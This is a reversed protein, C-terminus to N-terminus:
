TTGQLVVSPGPRSDPAKTRQPRAPRVHPRHGRPHGAPQCPDAPTRADADRLVAAEAGAPLEALGSLGDLDGTASLEQALVALKVNRRQSYKTLLTFADPATIKFREMLIGQAQGIVTRSEMARTLNQVAARHRLTVALHTALSIARDLDAEAFTRPQLCYLTVAGFEGRGGLPIAVVARPHGDGRTWCPWRDDDVLDASLVPMGTRMAELAPGSGLSCQLRDAAEAVDCTAFVSTPGAPEIGIVGVADCLGFDIAAAILDGVVAAPDRRASAARVRELFSVASPAEAACGVDLPSRMM